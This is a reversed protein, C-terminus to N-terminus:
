YFHNLIWRPNEQRYFKVNSFTGKVEVYAAQFAADDARYIVFINKLARVRQEVSELLAYLQLPRQYSFIILDAQLLEKKNVKNVTNCLSCKILLSTSIFFLFKIGKKFM